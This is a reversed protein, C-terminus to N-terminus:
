VWSGLGRRGAEPRTYSPYTRRVAPDEPPFIVYLVGLIGKIDGM